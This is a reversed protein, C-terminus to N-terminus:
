RAGAAESTVKNDRALILGVGAIIAAIAAAWDPPTGASMANLVGSAACLISAIGASTTKWSSM